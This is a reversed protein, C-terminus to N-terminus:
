AIARTLGYGSVVGIVLGVFVNAALYGQQRYQFALYPYTTFTEVLQNLPSILGWNLTGALILTLWVWRSAARNEFIFIRDSRREVTQISDM